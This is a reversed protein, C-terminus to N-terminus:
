IKNVFNPFDFSNVEIGQEMNVILLKRIVWFLFYIKTIDYITEIGNHKASHFFKSRTTYIKGLIKSLKLDNLLNCIKIKFKYTNEGNNIKLLKEIFAVLLGVILDYDHSPHLRAVDSLVHALFIIEDHKNENKQFFSVFEEINLSKQWETIYQKILSFVREDSNNSKKIQDFINENGLIDLVTKDFFWQQWPNYLYALKPNFFLTRKEDVIIPAVRIPGFLLFLSQFYVSLGFIIDKFIDSSVSYAKAIEGLDDKVDLVMAYRTQPLSSAVCYQQILRDSLKDCSDQKLEGSTFFHHGSKISISLSLALSPHAPLNRLKYIPVSIDYNSLIGKIGYPLIIPIYFKM